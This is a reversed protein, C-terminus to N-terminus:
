FMTTLKNYFTTQIQSGLSTVATVIAVSIGAAVLAYEIATAGDRAALLRRFERALCDTALVLRRMM